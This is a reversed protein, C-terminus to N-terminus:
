RATQTGMPTPPPPLLDALEICHPVKPSLGERLPWAEREHNPSSHTPQWHLHVSFQLQWGRARGAQLGM